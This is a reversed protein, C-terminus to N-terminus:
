VPSLAVTELSGFNVLCVIRICLKVACVAAFTASPQSDGERERVCEWELEGEAGGKRERERERERTERWRERERKWCVLDTSSRCQLMASHHTLPKKMIEPSLFIYWNSHDENKKKSKREKVVRNNHLTGNTGINYCLTLLLLALAQCIWIAGITFTPWTYLLFVTSEKWILVCFFVSTLQAMLM